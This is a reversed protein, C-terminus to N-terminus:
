LPIRYSLIEMKTGELQDGAFNEVLITITNFLETQVDYLNIHYTIARINPMMTMFGNDLQKKYERRVINFQEQLSSAEPYPDWCYYHGTSIKFEGHHGDM